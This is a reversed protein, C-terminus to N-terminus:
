TRRQVRQHAPQEGSQDGVLSQPEAAAVASGDPEWPERKPAHATVAGPLSYPSQGATVVRITLATILLTVNVRPSM